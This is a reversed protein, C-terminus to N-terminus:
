GGAVTALGPIPDSKGNVSMWRNQRLSRYASEIVRVSAMADEATILLPQEGQVALAFNDLQSRFAQLKDYGSGFVVWGPKSSERYKSESWGIYITGRSGYISIYSADKNITWSLDISGTVGTTTRVVMHVTEEVPLGQIRKGDVVYVEAIPGLFYRMLDVSHTGNDILVGGGSIAVDANWRSAMDVHAAFTNEFHIVEGILGSAVVSRARVVDDVYRFKSAMTLIVGNESATTLMLRASSSDISLPKECLVNVKHQLFYCGVRAHTAPPTCVVVADLAASTAMEEYREFSQCNMGSAMAEAAEKRIDAVAVLEAHQTDAFAQAYTQAIRGAGVM